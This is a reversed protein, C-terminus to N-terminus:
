IPVGLVVAGVYRNREDELLRAYVETQTVSSHGLYDSVVKLPVGNSLALTAFTHRGSHFTIKKTIGARVRWRHITYNVSQISPTYPLVREDANMREGLIQRAQSGIPLIHEKGTKVMRYRLECTGDPQDHVNSWKLARLDSHRMGTLCSFLFAKRTTQSRLPTSFLADLEHQRLFEKSANGRPISEVRAKLDIPLIDDLHAQRIASMFLGFYKSQSAQSLPSAQLYSRFNRCDSVTLESLSLFGIRSSDLHQIAWKWGQRTKEKQRSDMMARCYESVSQKDKGKNPNPDRELELRRESAKLEALKWYKSTEDRQITGRPKELVYIGLYEKWRKGKMYIDLYLTLRGDAIPLSRVTVGM